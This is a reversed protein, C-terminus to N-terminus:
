ATPLREANDAASDRSDILINVMLGVIIIAGGIIKVTSIPNKLIIDIFAATVSQGVFILLTINFNSVRHTVYSSLTVVVVGLAGGLYAWIPIGAQVVFKGQMILLLLVSALLGCIYNIFTSQYMGIKLALNANLIRSIIISLGSLIAVIIYLM